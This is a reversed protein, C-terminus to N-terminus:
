STIDLIHRLPAQASALSPPNPQALPFVRHRRRSRLAVIVGEGELLNLHYQITGASCGLRRRLQSQLIGPSERVAAVIAARLSHELLRERQTSAHRTM